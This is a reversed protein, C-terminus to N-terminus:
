RSRTAKAAEDAATWAPTGEVLGALRELQELYRDRLGPERRPDDAKGGHLIRSTAAIATKLAEMRAILAQSEVGLAEIERTVQQLPSERPPGAEAQAAALGGCGLIAALALVLACGARTM